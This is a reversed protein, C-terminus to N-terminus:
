AGFERRLALEGEVRRRQQDVLKLAEALCADSFRSLPQYDWPFISAALTVSVQFSEKGLWGPEFPETM